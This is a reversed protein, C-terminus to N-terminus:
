AELRELQVPRRRADPAVALAARTVVAAQEDEIATVREVICAEGVQPQAVQALNSVIPYATAHAVDVREHLRLERVPRVQAQLAGHAPGRDSVALSNLVFPGPALSTPRPLLCDLASPQPEGEDRVVELMALRCVIQELEALHTSLM